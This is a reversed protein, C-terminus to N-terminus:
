ADSPRTLDIPPSFHTSTMKAAQFQAAKMVTANELWAHWPAGSGKLIEHKCREIMMGLAADYTIMQTDNLHITYRYTTM